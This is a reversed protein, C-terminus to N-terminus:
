ARVAAADESFRRAAEAGAGPAVAVGLGALVRGIAELVRVMQEPRAAGMHAVRFIKGALDGQGGAVIVRHEERLAKLIRSAEIGEPVKVATVLPSAVADEALLELGLARAGARFSGAMRRHRAYVNDLGEAGILRLAERLGFWLGVAPTYPTQGKAASKRARRYDWYYRPLTAREVAEWASPSVYVLGLGPPTMLAKQSGTVLVDVGWEACRTEVGGLASVADVVLLPGRAKVAAAVAPLDLLVGTSTENHTVIVARYREPGAADLRLAIAEATAATGPPVSLRDVEVGFAQAIVAFREGFEGMVVSLIRDGPSFLNVVASEMVGTGSAPFILVDAESGFVPRLGEQIEQYLETFSPGRHNIMQRSVAARVEPPVQTPGPILLLDEM